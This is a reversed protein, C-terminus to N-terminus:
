LTCTCTHIGYYNIHMCSLLTFRYRQKGCHYHNSCLDHVIDLMNNLQDSIAYFYWPLLHNDRLGINWNHCCRQNLHHWFTNSTWKVTYQYQYRPFNIIWTLLLHNQRLSENMILKLVKFFSCQSVFHIQKNSVWYPLASPYKKCSIM